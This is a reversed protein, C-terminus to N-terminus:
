FRRSCPRDREHDRCPIRALHGAGAQTYSYHFRGCMRAPVRLTQRLRSLYRPLPLSGKPRVLRKEATNGSFAQLVGFSTVDKARLTRFNVLLIKAIVIHRALGVAQTGSFNAPIRECLHCNSARRYFSPPLSVWGSWVHRRAARWIHTLDQSM